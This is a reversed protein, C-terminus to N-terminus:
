RCPRSRTQQQDMQRTKQGDTHLRVDFVALFVFITRKLIQIIEYWWAQAEYKTYLAGFAMLAAQNTHLKKAQIKHLTLGIYCPLGLLYTVLGAM